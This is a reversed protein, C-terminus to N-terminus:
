HGRIYAEAALEAEDRTAYADESVMEGIQWHWVSGTGRVTYPIGHLREYVEPEPASHPAIPASADPPSLPDPSPSLEDWFADVPM